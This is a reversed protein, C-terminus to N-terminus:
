LDGIRWNLLFVLLCSVMFEQNFARTVYKMFLECGSELSIHSRGGLDDESCTKLHKIASSLEEELEMWTSAKSDQYLFCLTILMTFLSICHHSASHRVKLRRVLANMAAVPVAMSKNLVLDKFYSAIVENGEAILSKTNQM